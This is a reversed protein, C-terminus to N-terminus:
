FWTFQNQSDESQILICYQCLFYTHKFLNTLPLLNWRAAIIFMAKSWDHKVFMNNWILLSPEGWQYAPPLGTTTTYLPHPRPFHSSIDVSVRRHSRIVTVLSGSMDLFICSVFRSGLIQNLINEILSVIIIEKPLVNLIVDILMRVSLIENWLWVSWSILSPTQYKINPGQITNSAHHRRHKISWHKM